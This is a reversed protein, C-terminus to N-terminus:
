RWQIGAQAKRDTASRATTQIGANSAHKARQIQTKAIM